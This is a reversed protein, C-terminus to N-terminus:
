TMARPADVRSWREGARSSAGVAVESSETGRCRCGTGRECIRSAAPQSHGKAEAIRCLQPPMTGGRADRFFGMTTDDSLSLSLSSSAPCREGGGFRGFLPVSSLTAFVPACVRRAEEDFGDFGDEGAAFFDGAFDGPFGFGM